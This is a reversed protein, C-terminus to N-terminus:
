GDKRVGMSRTYADTLSWRFLTEIADHFEVVSNCISDAEMPLTDPIEFTQFADIDLLYFPGDPVARGRQPEVTTGERFLGHRVNIGRDESFRLRLEQISLQARDALAPLVLPGRIEAKVAEIPSLGEPRIENIYRLGLRLGAAPQIHQVLADLLRHLRALFDGFHLYTRAEIALASVSLTMTWFGSRDTFKWAQSLSAGAGGEAVPGFDAKVQMTRSLIPYDERVAQQFPAVFNPDLASLVPAFQVECVALVLPPNAFVVRSPLPLALEDALAM